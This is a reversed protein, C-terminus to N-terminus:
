RRSRMAFVSSRNMASCKRRPHNVLRPDASSSTSSKRRRMEDRLHNGAVRFLWPEFRGREQYGNKRRLQDFLKVFTVQTLEEALERDHCQSVLLAYVRRAYQEVLQRWAADDGAAAQQLTVEIPNHEGQPETM